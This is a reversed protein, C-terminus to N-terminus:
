RRHRWAEVAVVIILAAVILWGVWPSFYERDAEQDRQISLRAEESSVTLVGDTCRTPEEDSTGCRVCGVLREQAKDEHCAYWVTDM